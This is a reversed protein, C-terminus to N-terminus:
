KLSHVKIATNNSIKMPFSGFVMRKIMENNLKTSTSTNSINEDKSTSKNNTSRSLLNTFSSDPKNTVSSRNQYFKSISSAQNASSSLKKVQNTTTTNSSSNLYSQSVFKDSDFINSRSGDSDEIFILFRIKIKSNDLRSNLNNSSNQTKPKKLSIPRSVKYNASINQGISIPKKTHNQNEKSSNLIFINKTKNFIIQPKMQQNNTQMDISNGENLYTSITRQMNLQYNRRATYIDIISAM